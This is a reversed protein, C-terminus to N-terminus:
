GLRALQRIKVGPWESALISFYVTDRHYGDACIVHRRLTGEEAAGIRAIAARSKSNRADTKLEIRECGLREFGYELLLLKAATNIATRQWPAGIFTCGIELRRHEAVINMYRTSGVVLGDQDHVAFPLAVKRRAQELADDIFEDVLERSDLPQPFWRTIGTGVTLAALNAAHATGLPVLRAFANELTVPGLKAALSPERAFTPKANL